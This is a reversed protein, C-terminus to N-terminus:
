VNSNKKIIKMSVKALFKAIVTDFLFMKKINVREPGRKKRYRLSMPLYFVRYACISGNFQKTYIFILKSHALGSFPSLIQGKEFNESVLIKM